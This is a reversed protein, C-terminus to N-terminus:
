HRLRASVCSTGIYNRNFVHSYAQLSIVLSHLPHCSLLSWVHSFFIKRQWPSITEKHATLVRRLRPWVWALIQLLYAFRNLLHQPLTTHPTYDIHLHVKLRMKLQLRAAAQELRSENSSILIFQTDRKNDTRRFFAQTLKARRQDRKKEGAREWQDRKSWKNCSMCMLYSALKHNKWSGYCSRESRLFLRTDRWAHIQTLFFMVQVVQYSAFVARVPFNSCRAPRQTAPGWCTEHCVGM